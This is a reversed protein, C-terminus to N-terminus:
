GETVLGFVARSVLNGQALMATAGNINLMQALFATQEKAMDADRVASESEVLNNHSVELSSRMSEYEHATTAGLEGHVAHVDALKQDITDIAAEASEATSLDFGETSKLNAVSDESGDLLKKTGFAASEAIGNLAEVSDNLASEYSEVMAEDVNGTSSAAVAIERMELLNEEMQVLFSDATQNRNIANDLNTIKQAISGIQARMQESIVLGAPDDAAQNIKQGSSLKAATKKISRQMMSLNRITNLSGTNTNISLGMM